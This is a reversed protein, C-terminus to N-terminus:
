YPDPMKVIKNHYVVEYDLADGGTGTDTPRGGHTGDYTADRVYGNTVTKLGGNNFGHKGGVIDLIPSSGDTNVYSGDSENGLPWWHKLNTDNIGRISNRKAAYIAEVESQSLAKDWMSLNSIYGEWTFGVHGTGGITDLAWGRNLTTTQIVLSQSSASGTVGNTDLHFATVDTGATGTQITKIVSYNTLGTNGTKTRQYHWATTADGHPYVKDSSDCTVLTTSSTNDWSCGTLTYELGSSSTAAGNVSQGLTQTVSTSGTTYEGMHYNAGEDSTSKGAWDGDVILSLSANSSGDYGDMTICVHYWRDYAFDFTWAESISGSMNHGYAHMVPQTWRLRWYENSGTKRTATLGSYSLQGSSAGASAPGWGLIGKYSDSISSIYHKQPLYLWM